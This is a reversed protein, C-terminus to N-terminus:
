VLVQMKDASNQKEAAKNQFDENKKEQQYLQPTNM